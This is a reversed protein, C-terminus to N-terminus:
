KSKASFCNRKVSSSDLILCAPSSNQVKLIFLLTRTAGASHSVTWSRAKVIIRRPLSFFAADAAAAAGVAASCDAVAPSSRSRAM